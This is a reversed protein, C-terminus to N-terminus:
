SEGPLCVYYVQMYSSIYPDDCAQVLTAQVQFVCDTQADCEDKLAAWDVPHNEQLSETCDTPKPVCCQDVDCDGSVDYQGYSASTVNIAKNPACTLNMIDLNCAYAESLDSLLM